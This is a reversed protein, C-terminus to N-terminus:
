GHHYVEQLIKQICADQQRHIDHYVSLAGTLTPAPIMEESVPRLMMGHGYASFKSRLLGMVHGLEQLTNHERDTLKNQISMLRSEIEYMRTTAARNRAEAQRYQRVRAVDGPDPVAPLPELSRRIQSHETMLESAEARVAKVENGLDDVKGAEFAHFQSIKETIYGSVLLGTDPNIVANKRVKADWFGRFGVIINPTNLGKIKSKKM